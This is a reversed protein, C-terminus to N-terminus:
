EARLAEAPDVSAARRAPILCAAIAVLLLLAPGTVFAVADLRSVGFLMGDLLRTAAFAAVIGVALGLCTVALGQRLILAVLQGRGAGLAARVGMERRRQSVSYSLVGYLGTAALVLALAAFAGLVAAAFRPQGVSDAVRAALSGVGGLAAAPETSTVISRLAGAFAAPDGTTRVALTTQQLRGDFSAPLYIQPEPKADLQAPLVDAVIGVIETAEKGFLGPFRLGVVPRDNQLYTGVFAENVIL